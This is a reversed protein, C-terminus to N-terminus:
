ALVAVNLQIVTQVAVASLIGVACIAMGLAQAFAQVVSYMSMQLDIHM